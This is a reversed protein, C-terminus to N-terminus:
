IGDILHTMLAIFMMSVIIIATVKTYFWIKKLINNKM